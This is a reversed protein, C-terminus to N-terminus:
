GADNLLWMSTVNVLAWIVDLALHNQITEDFIIVLRADFEEDGRHLVYIVPIKPLPRLKVAADGYDVAMGGLAEGAKVMDDPRSQFRKLVPRTHLAHPGQFFLAGGKLDKESVLNGNPTAPSGKALYSLVALAEMFSAERLGSNRTIFITESGPDVRCERNLFSFRFSGDKSSEVWCRSALEAPDHERIAPWLLPDLQFNDNYSKREDVGM